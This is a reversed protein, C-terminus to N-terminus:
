NEVYERDEGAFSLTVDYDFKHIKGNTLLEFIQDYQSGEYLKRERGNNDDDNSGNLLTNYISKSM